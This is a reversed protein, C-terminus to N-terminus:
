FRVRTSSCGRTSGGRSDTANARAGGRIKSKSKYTNCQKCMPNRKSLVFLPGEKYKIRSYTSPPKLHKYLTNNQEHFTHYFHKDDIGIHDNLSTNSVSFLTSRIIIWMDSITTRTSVKRRRRKKEDGSQSRQVKTPSERAPRKRNQNRGPLRRRSVARRPSVLPEARSSNIVDCDFARACPDHRSACRFGDDLKERTRVHTYQPAVARPSPSV